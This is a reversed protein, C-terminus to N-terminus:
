FNFNRKLVIFGLFLVFGVSFFFAVAMVSTLLSSGTEELNIKSVEENLKMEVSSIKSTLMESSSEDSEGCFEYIKRLLFKLDTNFGGSICSNWSMSLFKLDSLGDFVKLHVTKINNEDLSIKILKPNFKFLDKKLTEIANSPLWLHQLEPFVKLDKQTIEKLNCSVVSLGILGIFKKEIGVPLYHMVKHVFHIGKVHEDTSAIEHNGIVEDVYVFRQKIILM